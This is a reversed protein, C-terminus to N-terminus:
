RDNIIVLMKLWFMSVGVGNIGYIVISRYVMVFKSIIVVIVEGVVRVWCSVVFVIVGVVESVVVLSLGYFVVGVVFKFVDRVVVGCGVVVREVSSVFSVVLVIFSVVDGVVVGLFLSLVFDVM